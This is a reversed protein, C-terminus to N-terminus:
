GSTEPFAPSHVFAPTRVGGEYIEGKFGKLPENSGGGLSPLGGNDSVFIIVSNEYLGSKKLELTINGIMDDMATVMGLFIRRDEDEINSYM